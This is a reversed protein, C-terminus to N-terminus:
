RSEADPAKSVPAEVCALLVPWLLPLVRRPWTVVLAGGLTAGLVLWLPHRRALPLLLAALAGQPQPTCGPLAEVSLLRARSRVLRDVAATIGPTNKM